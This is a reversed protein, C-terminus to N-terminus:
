GHHTYDGSPELQIAASENTDGEVVQDQGLVVEAFPIASVAGDQSAIAQSLVGFGTDVGQLGRRVDRDYLERVNIIFRPATSCLTISTFM